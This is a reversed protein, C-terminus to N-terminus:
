FYYGTGRPVSHKEVAKKMAVVERPVNRRTVNLTGTGVIGYELQKELLVPSTYFNDIFLEYGQFVYPEILKMVVGFSLGNGYYTTSRGAYINFDVIYGFRDALVWYKM